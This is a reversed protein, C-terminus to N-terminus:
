GFYQTLFKRTDAEGLEQLLTNIFQIDQEFQESYDMYDMDCFDNYIEMAKAM